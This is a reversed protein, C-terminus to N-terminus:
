SAGDHKKSSWMLASTADGCGFEESVKKMRNVDVRSAVQDFFEVWIGQEQEIKGTVESLNDLRESNDNISKKLPLLCLNPSKPRHYFPYQHTSFDFWDIWRDIIGRTKL